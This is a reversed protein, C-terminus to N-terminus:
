RGRRNARARAVLIGGLGVVIDFVVLILAQGTTPWAEGFQPWLIYLAFLDTVAVYVLM